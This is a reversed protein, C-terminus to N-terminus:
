STHEESRPQAGPALRGVGICRVSPRDPRQSNVLLRAMSSNKRDNVLLIIHDLEIAMTAGNGALFQVGDKGSQVGAHGFSSHAAIETDLARRPEFGKSPEAIGM